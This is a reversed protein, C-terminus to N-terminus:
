PRTETGQFLYKFRGLMEIFIFIILVCSLELVYIINYNLESMIKEGRCAQITQSQIM